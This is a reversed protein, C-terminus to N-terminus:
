RVPRKPREGRRAADIANPPLSLSSGNPHGSGIWEAVLAQVEDLHSVLAEPRLILDYQVAPDEVFSYRITVLERHSTAAASIIRTTRLGWPTSVVLGELAAVDITRSRRSDRRYGPQAAPDARV